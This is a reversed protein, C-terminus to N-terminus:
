DKASQNYEALSPTAGITVEGCDVFTPEFYCEFSEDNKIAKIFDVFEALTFTCKLVESPPKPIHQKNSAKLSARIVRKM